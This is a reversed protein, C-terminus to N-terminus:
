SVQMFPRFKIESINRFNIVFDKCSIISGSDKDDWFNLIVCSTIKLVPPVEAADASSTFFNKSIIFYVVLR